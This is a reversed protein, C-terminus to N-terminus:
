MLLQWIIHERFNLINYLVVRCIFYTNKIQIEKLIMLTKFHLMLITIKLIILKKVNMMMDLTM